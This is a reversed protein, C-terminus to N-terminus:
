SRKIKEAGSSDYVDSPKNIATEKIETLKDEFHKILKAM